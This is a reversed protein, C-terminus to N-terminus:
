ADHVDFEGKENLVHEQESMPSEEQGAPAGDDGRGLGPTDFHHELRLVLLRAAPVRRRARLALRRARRYNGKTTWRSSRTRTRPLSTRIAASTPGCPSRAARRM